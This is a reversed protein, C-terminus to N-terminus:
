QWPSNTSPPPSPPALFLWTFGNDMPDTDVLAWTVGEVILPDGKNLLSADCSRALLEPGDRGVTLGEAARRERDLTVRAGTRRIAFLEGFPAMVPIAFEDPDLLEALDADDIIM